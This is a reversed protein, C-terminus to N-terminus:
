REAETRKNETKAFHKKLLAKIEDSTNRTDIETFPFSLRAGHQLLLTVMEVNRGVFGVALPDWTKEFRANVDAGAELLAKAAGLQGYHIAVGLATIDKWGQVLAMGHPFDAREDISLKQDLLHKIVPVNGAMAAAHLLSGGNATKYGIDGGRSALFDLVEPTESSAAIWLPTARVSDLGGVSWSCTANIQAGQKLFYDIVNTHGFHAASHIPQGLDSDTTVSIGEQVFFEAVEVTKAYHLPTAKQRGYSKKPKWDGGAKLLARIMEMSGSQAAFHIPMNGYGDDVNVKAGQDILYRLVEPRNYFTAWHLPTGPKATPPPTYHTMTGGEGIQVRSSGRKIEVNLDATNALLLKVIGMAGARAAIHLATSLDAARQNVDAGKEILYGAIRESSNEAAVLLPPGGFAAQLSKYLTGNDLKKFEELDDTEFVKVYKRKELHKIRREGEIKRASQPFRGLFATLSEVSEMDFATQWAIDEIRSKAEALQKGTPFENAYKGYSQETNTICAARWSLEDLLSEADPTFEAKPYTRILNRVVELERKDKAQKWLLLGVRAQAERARPHSPHQNLVNQYTIIDDAQFAREYDRDPNSCGNFLGLVCVLISPLTIAKM